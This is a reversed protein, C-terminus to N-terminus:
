QLVGTLRKKLRTLAERHSNKCRDSFWQVLCSVFFHDYSDRYRVASDAGMGDELVLRIADLTAISPLGSASMNLDKERLAEAVSRFGQSTHNLAAALSKHSVQQQSLAALSQLAENKKSLRQQSVKRQVLGKSIASRCIQTFSRAEFPFGIVASAGPVLSSDQESPRCIEQRIVAIYTCEHGHETAKASDIFGKAAQPTLTPGIICADIGGREICDLGDVLSRAEIVNRVIAAEATSHLLHKRSRFSSDVILGQEAMSTDELQNNM